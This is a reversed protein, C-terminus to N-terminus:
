FVNSVNGYIIIKRMTLPFSYNYVAGLLAKAKQLLLFYAGSYDQNM